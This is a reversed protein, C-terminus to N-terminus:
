RRSADAGSTGTAAAALDPVADFPELVPEVLSSDHVLLNGEGAFYSQGDQVKLNFVPQVLGMGVGTVEAVSAFARLRDGPKLDRAMIWGSGAKWFRHIGTAKIMERGFKINYVIAPENHLAAVVPQYSLTGTVTDQSLVQDGVKLSQIPRPGGLTFVPTGAAFCSSHVSDMYTPKDESLTWDQRAAPGPAEYAYGREETWWKRASERDIGLDKGIVAGLVQVVRADFEGVQLVHLRAAAVEGQSEYLIQAVASHLHMAQLKTQNWVALPYGPSPATTPVGLAVMSRSDDVTYYRLVDYRPGRVFLVGPSGIETAGVTQVYFHYLIPDPDLVPDRLLGVLVPAADRPDRLRLTQTANSRVEGSGSAVALIALARTSAASDIQGLVQVAIKQLAPGGIAFVTCVSSVARPDCVGGLSQHVDSVKARDALDNRWRTLKAMWQKDARRQAESEAKETALQGDTLWRGSQRKYGLRTWAADRTPELRTVAMLHATAETKLGREECWLALKWHALGTDKGMRSRRADYEERVAKQRGDAELKRRIAEPSHWGGGSAVLGLLGRATAHAPDKLVAMALHRLREADMGHAECWLALRVHDDPSRGVQSKADRYASDIGAPIGGSDSSVSGPAGFALCAACVFFVSLM